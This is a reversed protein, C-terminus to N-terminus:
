IPNRQDGQRQEDKHLRGSKLKDESRMCHRVKTQRVKNTKTIAPLHGYM